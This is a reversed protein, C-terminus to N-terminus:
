RMLTNKLTTSVIYYESLIESHLQHSVKKKKKSASSNYIGSNM